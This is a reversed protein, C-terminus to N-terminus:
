LFLTKSKCYQKDGEGVVDRIVFFTTCQLICKKHRHPLCGRRLPLLYRKQVQAMGDCLPPQDPDGVVQYQAECFYTYIKYFSSNTYFIKSVVSLNPFTLSMEKV